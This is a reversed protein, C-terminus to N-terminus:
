ILIPYKDKEPEVFVIETKWVAKEGVVDRKLKHLIDCIPVPLLHHFVGTALSIFTNERDNVTCISFTNFGIIRRRNFFIYLKEAGAIEKARELDFILASSSNRGHFTTVFQDNKTVIPLFKKAMVEPIANLIIVAGSVIPIDNEVQEISYLTAENGKKEYEEIKLLKCNKTHNSKQESFVVECDSNLHMQCTFQCNTTICEMRYGVGRRRATPSHIGPSYFVM